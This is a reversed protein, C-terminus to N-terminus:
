RSLAKTHVTFHIMTTPVDDLMGVRELRPQTHCLAADKVATAGVVILLLTPRDDKQTIKSVPRFETLQMTNM